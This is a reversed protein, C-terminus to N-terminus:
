SGLGVSVGYVLLEEGHVLDLALGPTVSARGLHFDYGAGLRREYDRGLTYSHSSHGLDSTLGAGFVAVHNPYYHGAHDDVHASAEVATAAHPTGSDAGTVTPVALVAVALLGVTSKM